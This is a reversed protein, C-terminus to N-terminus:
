TDGNAPQSTLHFGACDPCEYVRVPVKWDARARTHHRVARLGAKAATETDWRRKGCARYPAPHITIKRNPLDMIARAAHQDLRDYVADIFEDREPGAAPITLPQPRESPKRAEMLTTVARRLDTGPELDLVNM